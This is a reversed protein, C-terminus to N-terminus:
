EVKGSKNGKVMAIVALVANVLCWAAWINLDVFSGVLAVGVDFLLRLAISGGKGV